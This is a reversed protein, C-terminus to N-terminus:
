DEVDEEEQDDDDSCELIAELRQMWVSSMRTRTRTLPKQVHQMTDLVKFHKELMLSSCANYKYPFLDSESPTSPASLSPTDFRSSANRALLHLSQISHMLPSSSVNRTVFGAIASIPTSRTTSQTTRPRTAICTPVSFVIDRDRGTIAPADLKTEPLAYAMAKKSKKNTIIATNSQFM